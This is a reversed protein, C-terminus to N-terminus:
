GSFLTASTKDLLRSSIPLPTNWIRPGSAAGSSTLLIGDPCAGATNEECDYSIGYEYSNAAANTTADAVITLGKADADADNQVMTIKGAFVDTGSTTGNDITMSVDFGAVSATTTGVDIDLTGDTQTQNTTDGDLLLKEDAGLTFDVSEQLDLTGGDQVEIEGGNAVVLKACGQEIYVDCSYSRPVAEEPACALAVILIILLSLGPTVIKGLKLHKKM